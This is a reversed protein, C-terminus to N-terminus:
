RHRGHHYSGGHYRGYHGGHHGAWYIVGFSLYFHLPTAVYIPCAPVKQPPQVQPKPVLKNNVVVYRSDPYFEQAQVQFRAILAPDKSGAKAGGAVMLMLGLVVGAKQM